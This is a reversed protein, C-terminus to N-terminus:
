NKEKMKQWVERRPCGADGWAQLENRVLVSRRGLKIPVPGLRGTKHMKYLHKRCVGLLRAADDMSVLIQETETITNVIEVM